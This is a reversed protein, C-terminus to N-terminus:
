KYEYVHCYLTPVCVLLHFCPPYLYNYRQLSGDGCSDLVCMRRQRQLLLAGTTPGSKSTSSVGLWSANVLRSLWWGRLVPDIGILFMPRLLGGLRKLALNPALAVGGKLCGFGGGDEAFMCCGLDGCELLLGDRGAHWSAAGSQLWELLKSEVLREDANAFGGVLLSMSQSVMIGLLVILMQRVM